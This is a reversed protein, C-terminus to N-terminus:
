ETFKVLNKENLGTGLRNFYNYKSQLQIYYIM